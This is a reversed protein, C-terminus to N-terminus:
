RSLTQPERSGKVEEVSQKVGLRDKVAKAVAANFSILCWGTSKATAALNILTEWIGM